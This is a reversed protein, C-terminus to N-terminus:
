DESSSSDDSESSEDSSSASDDEAQFLDEIEVAESATEEDEVLVLYQMLGERCTPLSVCFGLIIAFFCM